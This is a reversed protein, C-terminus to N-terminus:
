VCLCVFLCVWVSVVVGGEGACAYLFSSNISPMVLINFLNWVTISCSSGCVSASSALCILLKLMTSAGPKCLYGKAVGVCALKRVTYKYNCTHV